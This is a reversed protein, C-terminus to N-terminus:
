WYFIAPEQGETGNALCIPERIFLVFKGEIKRWEEEEKQHVLLEDETCCTKGRCWVTDGSYNVCFRLQKHQYFRMWTGFGCSMYPRLAIQCELARLAEVSDHVASVGIALLLTLILAIM